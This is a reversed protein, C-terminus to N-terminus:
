VSSHAGHAARPTRIGRSTTTSSSTASRCSSGGRRCGRDCGTGPDCRRPVAARRPAQDAALRARGAEHRRPHNGGQLGLAELKEVLYDLTDKFETFLVLRQDLRDFSDRAACFIKTSPSSRRSAAQEVDQAKVALARLEAIERSVMEANGALTIADLLRELRERDREEM